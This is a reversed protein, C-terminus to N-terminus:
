RSVLLLTMPLCHLGLDSAVYHSTQDPDVSKALLIQEMLIFYSRGFLGSVGFHCMSEGLIYRIRNKTNNLTTIEPLYLFRFLIM